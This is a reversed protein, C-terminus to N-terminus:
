KGGKPADETANIGASVRAPLIFLIEVLSDTFEIAQQAETQTLHPRKEDAHRPDNADLRVSHAWKAMDPTLLHAAVAKEIRVYLSGETYGKEKLTADVASACLMVAGDPTHVAEKAQSLYRRVREPVSKDIGSVKPFLFLAEGPHPVTDGVYNGQPTYRALVPWSGAVVPMACTTCFYLKWYQGRVGRNIQDAASKRPETAHWVLLFVPSAVGCHPCRALGTLQDGMLTPM